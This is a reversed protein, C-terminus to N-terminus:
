GVSCDIVTHRGYDECLAASTGDDVNLSSDSFLDFSHNIKNHDSKTPTSTLLRTGAAPNDNINSPRKKKIIISAKPRFLPATTEVPENPIVEPIMLKYKSIQANVIAEEALEKNVPLTTQKDRPFSHVVQKTICMSEFDDLPTSISPESEVDLSNLAGLLSKPKKKQAVLAKWLEDGICPAYSIFLISDIILM